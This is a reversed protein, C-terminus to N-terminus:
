CSPPKSLTLSQKTKSLTSQPDFIELYCAPLQITRESWIEPSGTDTERHELPHYDHATELPTPGVRGKSFCARQLTHPNVWLSTLIALQPQREQVLWSLHQFGAPPSYLLNPADGLQAHQVM